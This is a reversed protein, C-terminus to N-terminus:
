SRPGGCPPSPRLGKEATVLMTANPELIAPADTRAVTGYLYDPLVSLRRDSANTIAMTLAGKTMTANGKEEVRTRKNFDATSYWGSYETKGEDAPNLWATRYDGAIQLDLIGRVKSLPAIFACRIGVRLKASQPGATETWTTCDYYPTLDRIQHGPEQSSTMLGDDSHEAALGGSVDGDLEASSVCGSLGVAVATTLVVVFAWSRRPARRSRM